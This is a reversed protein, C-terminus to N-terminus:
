PASPKAPPTKGGSVARLIRRIANSDSPPKAVASISDSGPLLAPLTLHMEAPAPEIGSPTPSGTAPGTPAGPLLAPTAASRAKAAPVLAPATAAKPVLAPKVSPRPAVAVPVVPASPAAAPATTPASDIAPTAASAVVSVATSDIPEAAPRRAFSVPAASEESSTAASLVVQTGVILAVGALALELPRRRSRRRFRITTEPELYGPALDVPHPDQPVPHALLPLPTPPPAHKVSPPAHKVSPLAHKAPVPTDVRVPAATSGELAKKYHPHFEIPLWKQSATHFIRSRRSVLGNRIATSLEEITRLVTEEGPSVEIRYM